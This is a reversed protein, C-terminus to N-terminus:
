ERPASGKRVHEVWADRMAQAIMLWDNKLLPGAEVWTELAGDPTQALYRKRNAEYGAKAMVAILPERIDSM